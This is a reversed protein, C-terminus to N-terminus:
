GSVVRGPGNNRNNIGEKGYVSTQLLYFAFIRKKIWKLFFLNLKFSFFLVTVREVTAM